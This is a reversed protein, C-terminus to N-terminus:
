RFIKEHKGSSLKSELAMNEKSRRVLEIQENEISEQDRTNFQISTGFSTGHKHGSVFLHIQQNEETASTLTLSTQKVTGNGSIFDIKEEVRGSVLVIDKPLSWKLDVEEIDEESFIEVDLTFPAGPVIREDALTKKMKVLLPGNVKNTYTVGRIGKIPKLIHDKYNALQSALSRRPQQLYNLALSIFVPTLTLLAVSLLWKSFRSKGKGEDLAFQRPM